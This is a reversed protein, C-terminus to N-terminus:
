EEGEEKIEKNGYSKLVKLAKKLISWDTGTVTFYFPNDGNMSFYIKKNSYSGSLEIYWHTTDEFCTNVYLNNKKVVEAVKEEFKTIDM